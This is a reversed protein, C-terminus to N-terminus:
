AMKTCDTAKFSVIMKDLDYGVLFNTQAVNGYFAQDETPRFALCWIGQGTPWIINEKSLPLDAAIFHMTVPPVDSGSLDKYCPNTSNEKFFPEVNIAQIIATEVQNYLQTPLSTLTTGSDIVINGETTSNNFLNFRKSNVSIGVLTLFYFHKFPKLCIPTFLAGTSGWANEGFTLTSPVDLQALPVFCYFFKQGFAPSIQSILSWPSVGLGMIGSMNPNTDALKSSHACGFVIDPFSIEKLGKPSYFTFMEMGLDGNSYSGDIYSMGYTCQSGQCNNQFCQSSGCPIAKYTSSNLSSFLPLHQSYCHVCPECQIWNVHSGSDAVALQFMPPTGVSFNILYNGLPEPVLEMSLSAPSRKSASHILEISFGGSKAESEPLLSTQTVTM